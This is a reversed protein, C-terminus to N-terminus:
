QGSGHVRDFMSTHRAITSTRWDRSQHKAPCPQCADAVTVIYNHLFEELGGDVSPQSQGKQVHSPTVHMQSPMSHHKSMTDPETTTPSIADSDDTTPTLNMGTNQSSAGVLHLFDM